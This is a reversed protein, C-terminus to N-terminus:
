FAAPVNTLVPIHKVPKRFSAASSSVRVSVPLANRVVPAVVYFSGDGSRELVVLLQQEVSRQSRTVSHSNLLDALYQSAMDHLCLYVLIKFEIRRHIPLWHLDRLDPTSMKALFYALTRCSSNSSQDLSCCCWYTM